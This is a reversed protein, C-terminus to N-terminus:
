EEWKHIEEQPLLLKKPTVFLLVLCTLSVAVGMVVFSAKNGVLSAILGSLPPGFIYALSITSASLGIMHKRERGMRAVIDSYVGDVMPYCVSLAISALFVISVLLIINDFLSLTSFLLGSVLLYKEALKKKGKFIGLRAIIFGMFLSPLIYFSLFMSGLWSDRSLEENLIPGVTWFFADIVGMLFSLIIVPWVHYFLVKWHEIEKFLNVEDIKIDLPRDHSRKFLTLSIYSIFLFVFSLYLPFRINRLLLSGVIIPGLFYAASKFVGIIGWAAPHFKTPTYDSVFQQQAFSLFEYYIGWVAMSILILLLFPTWTAWLLTLSFISSAILSLLILKRVTVGKIIQPLILDALLGIVSSFGMILGVKTTNESVEELFNPVWYSLVADALFTFFLVVSLSAIKLWLPDRILDGFRRKFM